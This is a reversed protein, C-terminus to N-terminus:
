DAKKNSKKKSAKMGYRLKPISGPAWNKGAGQINVLPDKTLAGLEDGMVQGGADPATPMNPDMKPNAMKGSKGKLGKLGGAMGVADQVTGAVATAGDIVKGATSKKGNGADYAGVIDGAIGMAGMLGFKAKIKKKKKM